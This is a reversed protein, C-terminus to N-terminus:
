TKFGLFKHEGPPALIRRGHATQCLAACLMLETSAGDGPDFARERALHETWGRQEMYEYTAEPGVLEPVPEPPPREPPPPPLPEAYGAPFPPGSPDLLEMKFALKVGEHELQEREADGAAEAEECQERKSEVLADQAARYADLDARSGIAVQPYPQTASDSRQVM